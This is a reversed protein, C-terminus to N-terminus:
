PCPFLPLKPAILAPRARSQDGISCSGIDWEAAVVGDDRYRMTPTKAAAIIAQGALPASLVAMGFKAGSLRVPQTAPTGPLSSGIPSSKKGGDDPGPGTM